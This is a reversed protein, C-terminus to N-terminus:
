RLARPVRRSAPPTGGVRSSVSGSRRRRVVSAYSTSCNRVRPFGSAASRICSRRSRVRDVPNRLIVILRVDPHNDKIRQAVVEPQHRWFMYGPTAEGVIPEGNWGEFQTRYWDLGLKQVRHGNNWFHLESSLIFIQPHHGLNIRLWRTACKDAGIIIFTPLAGRDTSSAM